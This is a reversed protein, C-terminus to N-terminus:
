RPPDASAGVATANIVEVVLKLWARNARNCQQNLQKVDAMLTAARAYDGVEQADMAAQHRERVATALVDAKARRRDIEPRLAEPDPAAAPPSM